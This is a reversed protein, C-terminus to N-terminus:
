KRRGSAPKVPTVPTPVPENSKTVKTQLISMLNQVTWYLTLGASYQYFMIGFIVPMYKLIKQQMPDMQPSMPTLNSLWFASGLYLLPMLNLPFGIFPIQWVTDPQSLDCCWLFSEGRLEIATRLMFFFGIFVPFTLVLPLCGAAPNIRHEKMFGMMKENMKTPDNKYKERIEAMQPQLSAMRKMSKTSANTLPWFALKILITLVVISWGYSPIISHLYNLLLLLAKACFGAGPFGTFSMVLDLEHEAGKLRRYEKPGAYVRYARTLKEGPQLTVAPYTFMAQHARPSPNLRSDASLEGQTPKPLEVDVVRLSAPSTQPLAIVAFYQNHVAGWVVNSQGGVFETRPTGPFCGLTRNAFWAVDVHEAKSGNYFFAGQVDGPDHRDMPTASGVVYEHAPVALAAAGRNELTLTAEVYYNTGLRLDQQVRLGGPLTKEARGGGAIPSLDFVGDGTLPGAALALAPAPAFRNLAALLGEAATKRNLCSVAAPYKKLEILRAGGGASTFTVRLLDNELTLSKEPAVLKPPTSAPIANTVAATSPTSSVVSNSGALSVQNTAGPPLPGDPYIRKAVWPLAVMALVCAAIVAITKRDM